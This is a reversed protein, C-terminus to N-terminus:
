FAPGRGPKKRQLSEAAALARRAWTALEDPDDLATHPLSWYSTIMTRAPGAKGRREFSFPLAGAAEFLPVDDPLTKLYVSGGAELAFMVGNRYIGKGGFMRRISVPGLPAFLDELATDM